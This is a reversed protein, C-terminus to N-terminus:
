EANGSISQPAYTIQPCMFCNEDLIQDRAPVVFVNPMNTMVGNKGEVYKFDTQVLSRASRLLEPV